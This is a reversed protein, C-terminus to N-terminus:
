GVVIYDYTKGATSNASHSIVASGKAKSSIYISAVGTSTPSLLIVSDFGIRADNITTSTAGGVALEISGTNNTKGNMAGNVIEAVSRQDGGISPLVRYHTM